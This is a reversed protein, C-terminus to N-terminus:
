VFKKNRRQIKHSFIAKSYRKGGLSSKDLKPNTDVQLRVLVGVVRGDPTKTNIVKLAWVNPKRPLLNGHHDRQVEWWKHM